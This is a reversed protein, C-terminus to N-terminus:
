ATQMGPSSEEGPNLYGSVAALQGENLQLALLSSRIDARTSRSNIMIVSDTPNERHM